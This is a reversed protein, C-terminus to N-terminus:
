VCLFPSFIFTIGLYIYIFWPYSSFVGYEVIFAYYISCIGCWSSGINAIWMLCIKWGNFYPM